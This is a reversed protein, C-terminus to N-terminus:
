KQVINNNTPTVLAQLFKTPQNQSLFIQIAAIILEYKTCKKGMRKEINISIGIEVETYLKFSFSAVGLYIMEILLYSNRHTPIYSNEYLLHMSEGFYIISHCTTVM